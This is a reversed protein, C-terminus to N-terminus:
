YIVQIIRNKPRSRAVVEYGEYSGDANSNGEITTYHDHNAPDEGTIIVAHHVHEPDGNHILGISGTSLGETGDLTKKHSKAWELLSMTGGTWMLSPLPTNAKNFAKRIVAEAFYLCWPQGAEFATDKLYARLDKGDNSGKPVEHLGVKSKAEAIVKGYLTCAM